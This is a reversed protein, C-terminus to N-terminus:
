RDKKNQLSAIFLHLFCCFEIIFKTSIYIYQKKPSYGIKGRLFEEEQSTFRFLVSKYAELIGEKKAFYGETIFCAFIENFNKKEPDVGSYIVSNIEIESGLLKQISSNFNEITQCFESGLFKKKVTPNNGFWFYLFLKGEVTVHFCFDSYAFSFLFFHRCHRELAPLFDRKELFFTPLNGIQARIFFM